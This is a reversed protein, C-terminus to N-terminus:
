RPLESLRWLVRHQQEVRQTLADLVLTFDLQGRIDGPLQDATAATTTSGALSALTATVALPPRSLQVSRPLQNPPITLSSVTGSWTRTATLDLPEGLAVTQAVESPLALMQGFMRALAADSWTVAAAQALPSPEGPVASPVREALRRALEAGGHAALVAGTRPDLDLDFVAGEMAALHGLLPDQTERGLDRASDVNRDSGPGLHTAIVRLIQVRLAVREPAVTQPDALLKWVMTTTYTLTDGASVWSVEQKLEYAWMRHQGVTFAWGEAAPLATAAVLLALLWRSM